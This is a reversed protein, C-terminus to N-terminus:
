KLRRIGTLNAAARLREWTTRQRPMATQRQITEEIRYLEAIRELVEKAFSSGQVLHIDFFQRRVHRQYSTFRASCLPYRRV